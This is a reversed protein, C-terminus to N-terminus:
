VMLCGRADECVMVCGRQLGNWGGSLPPQFFLYFISFVQRGEGRCRCGRDVIRGGWGGCRGDSRGVGGLVEDSARLRGNM